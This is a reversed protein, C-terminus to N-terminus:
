VSYIFYRRKVKSVFDCSPFFDVQPGKNNNIKKKFRHAKIEKNAQQSTFCHDCAPQALCLMASIYICLQHADLRFFIKRPVGCSACQSMRHCEPNKVPDRAALSLTDERSRSDGSEEPVVRDRRRVMAVDFLRSCAVM